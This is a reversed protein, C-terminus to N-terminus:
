AKKTFTPLKLQKTFILKDKNLLDFKVLFELATDVDFGQLADDYCIKELLEKFYFLDIKM